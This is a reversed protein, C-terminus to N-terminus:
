QFSIWTRRVESVVVPQFVLNGATFDGEVIASKMRANSVTFQAIIDGTSKKKFTVEDEDILISFDSTDSEINLGANDFIYGKSTTITNQQQIVSLIIKEASQNIKTVISNGDLAESVSAIIAGLAVNFSTTSEKLTTIDAANSSTNDEITALQNAIQNKYANLSSLDTVIVWATGDWCNFQNPVVSTNLWTQNVYPNIPAASSVTIDNLDIITFQGSALAM